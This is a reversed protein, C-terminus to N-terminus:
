EYRLSDVPNATAAKISQYSVTLLAIVLAALGSLIFIDIGLRARYAFDQLWNKMLIYAVPWAILNALVVWKLFQKSIFITISATSAGLVKRVGIEKFRQQATFAALGLLGLCAIALGLFTFIGFLSGMQEEARYRSDFDADLFFHEFPHGPWLADWQTRAFALAKDLGATDISLTIYSFTWPLFEMILPEIRSQLGRYHFNRTVGIVPNVRSGHGTRLRKGIAEEPSSWGFAEAAAENIIFAGMFDTKMTKIFARGAVIDIGYDDIFDDDFYMHFMSQKKSDDEGVLAISYNSIGRGPVTSSVTVGKISPHRSFRDKVSTFNKQINIGGRLPLVLKHEKEFGLSQEKMFSFQKYMTLTGIMLVASIGFQVIVLVTRLAFGRNGPGSIGKVTTVPKFSSLVFAPYLGAVLGVLATGCVLLILAGPKLLVAFNLSVGTLKELLPLAGSAIVMALGLSLFAVLISEGSFQGILQRRQAGVVKRLGVERARNAARATSLNIFNLCAILLIFIGVLFFILLYAQNGPPETEYALHSHLHIDSLLQLSYHYVSGWGRLRDGVYNDALHSIQRSFAEMDVGPRLKLYTYFMTSHWNSMEDWDKLTELSAILDYKLHTNGPSNRVVGSIEFERDNIKLIEGIPNAKGFYKSAMRQSIVVTNPRAISERPNGQIFPITFIDFLEPDAFMFREEYFFKDKRRVLPDRWTRLVRASCEVQPYDSKLAPAVTPSVPVFVRNGAQSRIDVIIRYARDVDQHYRDFSLEHHIYSFILLCCAMGIAFGAINIFSYGKHRILNQLAIKLYNKFM